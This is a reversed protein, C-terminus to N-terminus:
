SVPPVFEKSLNYEPIDKVEKGSWLVMVNYAWTNDKFIVGYKKKSSSVWTIRVADYTKGQKFYVEQGVSYRPSDGGDACGGGTVNDLEDETLEGNKNAYEYIKHAEEDSLDFGKEKGLSKVEEISKADKALEILEKANKNM